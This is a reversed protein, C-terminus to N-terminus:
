GFGVYTRDAGARDRRRVGARQSALWAVGTGAMEAHEPLRSAAFCVPQGRDERSSVYQADEVIRGTGRCKLGVVGGAILTVQVPHGVEM